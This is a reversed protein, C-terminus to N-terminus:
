KTGTLFSQTFFFGSIWFATPAGQDIWKQIFNLRDIFDLLYSALPKLSPYSFKQWVNPIKNTVVKNFVENLENNMSVTGDIAKIVNALSGRVVSLLRNFRLIEQQLVTNMSEEFLVPRM